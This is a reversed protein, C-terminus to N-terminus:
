GESEVAKVYLTGTYTGAKQDARTTLFFYANKSIASESPVPVDTWVNAYDTTLAVANGGTNDVNDYEVNEIPIYDSGDTLQMNDSGKFQVDTSVTTTELVQVVLPNGTDADALVDTMGKTAGAWKPWQTASIDIVTAITAEMTGQQEEGATTLPANLSLAVASALILIGVCITATQAIGKM